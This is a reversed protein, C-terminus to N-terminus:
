PGTPEDSGGIAPRLVLMPISTACLLQGAVSGVSLRLLGRCGHIGLAILDIGRAQIEAEIAVAPQEHIVVRTSVHLSWRRFVEAIRELYAHAEAGWEEPISRDPKWAAPQAAGNGDTIMPRLVQFLMYWSISAVGVHVQDLM